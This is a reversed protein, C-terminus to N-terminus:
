MYELELFHCYLFANTFSSPKELSMLNAEHFLLRYVLSLCSPSKSLSAKNENVCAIIAAPKSSKDRKLNAETVYLFYSLIGEKSGPM